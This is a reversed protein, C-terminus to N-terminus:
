LWVALFIAGWVCVLVSLLVLLRATRTIPDPLGRVTLLLLFPLFDLAYRFGFQVFGIGYYTVIPVAVSLVGLWCAQVLPEKLMARFAYILAPSTFFLGMGWPSPKIYPFTLVAADQSPYPLPGQLLMMFLNKPVHVLSFLGYGRADALFDHYLAALAFGTEFPNGFRLYNYAFLLSVPGAVGLLLMAIHSALRPKATSAESGQVPRTRWLLWVFFPLAFLATMRTMGALGLFLGVLWLRRRGLMEWIALLLCTTTVIHALYTSIGVLVVPFYVTGGFFLLLAWNRREGTVGALGLVKYFLGLNLLTFVYGAWVMPMGVDLLPLFPILLVAPLPGFPLYKHGQWSVYDNYGIPIGDVSLDGHVLHRALYIYHDNYTAVDFSPWVLLLMVLLSAVTFLVL